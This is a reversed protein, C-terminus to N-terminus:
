RATIFSVWSLGVILGGTICHVVLGFVHSEFKFEIYIYKDDRTLFFLMGVNKILDRIAQPINTLLLFIYACHCLVIFKPM